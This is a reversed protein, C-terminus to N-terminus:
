GSKLRDIGEILTFVLIPLALIGTIISDNTSTTTSAITSPFSVSVVVLILMAFVSYAWLLIMYWPWRKDAQNKM